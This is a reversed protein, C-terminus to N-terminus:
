EIRRPAGRGVVLDRLLDGLVPRDDIEVVPVPEPRVGVLEAAQARHGVAHHPQLSQLHVSSIVFYRSRRRAVITGVSNKTETRIKPSCCSRGPSGATASAPSSRSGSVM